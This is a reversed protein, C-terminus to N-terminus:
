CETAKLVLMAFSGEDRIVRSPLRMCAMSQQLVCDLWIAGDEGTTFWEIGYVYVFLPYGVALRRLREMSEILGLCAM